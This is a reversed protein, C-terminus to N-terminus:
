APEEVLLVTVDALGERLRKVATYEQSNWFALAAAKNPWESVVVSIGDPGDGELWVAGPARIVYRGGFRGLLEAAAPAYGTMFRERDYVKATVILWAAM